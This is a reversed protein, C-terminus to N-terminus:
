CNQLEQTFKEWLHMEVQRLFKKLNAMKVYIFKKSSNDGSGDLTIGLIKNKISLHCITHLCCIVFIIIM